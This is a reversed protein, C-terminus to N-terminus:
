LQKEFRYSTRVNRYGIREYFQHADSRHLGSSLKVCLYGNEVAWGEAASMLLKGAGKQRLKEDVVLGGIEAYLPTELRAIEHVHVWGVVREGDVAVFCAHGRMKGIREIRERIEGGVVPYGLQASLEAVQSADEITMFRISIM